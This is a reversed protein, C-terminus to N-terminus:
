HYEKRFLGDWMVRHCTIKRMSEDKPLVQM